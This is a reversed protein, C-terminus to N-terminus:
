ATLNEKEQSSAPKKFGAYLTLAAFIFHLVNTGATSMFLGFINDMFLGLVAGLLYIAGFIRAVWLSYKEYNSVALFVVGSILHVLNHPTTLHLVGHLPLFFGLVGLLVFIGGLVRMMTQLM